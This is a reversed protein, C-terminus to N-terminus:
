RSVARRPPGPPRPTRAARSTAAPTSSRSVGSKKVGGGPDRQPLRRRRVQALSLRSTSRATQQETMGEIVKDTITSITQGSVEVWVRPDCNTSRQPTRFTPTALPRRLGGPHTVLLRSPTALVRPIIGPARAPGGVRTAAEVAARVTVHGDARSYPRQGLLQTMCWPGTVHSRMPPRRHRLHDVRQRRV